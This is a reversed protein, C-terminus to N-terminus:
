IILSVHLPRFTLIEMVEARVQSVGAGLSRWGFCLSSIFQKFALVRFACSNMHQLRELSYFEAADVFFLLTQQCM